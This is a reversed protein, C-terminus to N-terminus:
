KGTNFAEPRVENASGVYVIVEGMKSVTVKRAYLRFKDGKKLRPSSDGKYRANESVYYVLVIEDPDGHKYQITEKVSNTVRFRATYKTRILPGGEVELAKEVEMVAIEIVEGDFVLSSQNSMEDLSLTRERNAKASLVLMFIFVFSLVPSKLMTMYNFTSLPGTGKLRASRRRGMTFTM